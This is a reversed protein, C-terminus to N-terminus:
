CGRLWRSTKGNRHVLWAMSSKMTHQDEGHLNQHPFTPHRGISTLTGFFVILWAFFYSRSKMKSTTKIPIRFFAKNYNGCLQTTYDGIHTWQEFWFSSRKELGLLNITKVRFFYSVECTSRSVKRSLNVLFCFFRRLFNNGLEQKTPQDSFNGLYTQKLFAM